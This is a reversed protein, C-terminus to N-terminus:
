NISRSNVKILSSWGLDPPSNFLMLGSTSYAAAASEASLIFHLSCLHFFESQIGNEMGSSLLFTQSLAEETEPRAARRPAGLGAEPLDALRRLVTLYLEGVKVDIYTSM